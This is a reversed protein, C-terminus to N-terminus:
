PSGNSRGGGGQGEGQLPLSIQNLLRRPLLLGLSSILLLAVGKVSRSVDAASTVSSILNLALWIGLLAEVLSPRLLTWSSRHTVIWFLIFGLGLLAALQEARIDVPGLRFTFRDIFCTAILLALLGVRAGFVRLYVAAALLVLVVAGAIAYRPPANTLLGLGFGLGAATVM